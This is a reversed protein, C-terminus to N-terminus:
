FDSVFAQITHWRNDGTKYGSCHAENLHVQTGGFHDTPSFSVPPYVGTKLNRLQQAFYIFRERTLNRGAAELMEALIKSLGWPILMIDDGDGKDPFVERVAKKFDTDFRGIDAWAPFPSFFKAGTLSGNRCGVAAVTDIAKTLGVGVWQPRYGQTAAEQLVQLFWVPSTLVYVNEIGASRMEQVVSRAETTGAGKSVGRDYALAMKEDRMAALFADHADQFNPTDFRLMGNKEDRAGLQTALLDALLPAQEAYSLSAAFYHPYSSLGSETVGISVYPVGVSAAYRACAQIQDTGAFGFLMFVNDKEVMEKCVAVATSPNYQDNKLITEVRRGNIDQGIEELWRWYLEVGKHASDSPIPAAGTLPAHAGIRIVDDEVGTSDGGRPESNGTGPAETSAPDSEGGIRDAGAEFSENGSAEAIPAGGFASVDGLVNGEADIVQGTEPDVTAGAPLALAVPQPPIPLESVGPKQGCAATITLLAVLVALKRLM